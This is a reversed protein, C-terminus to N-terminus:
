SITKHTNTEFLKAAAYPCLCMSTKAKKILCLLLICQTRVFDEEQFVSSAPACAIHLYIPTFPYIASPNQDLYQEVYIFLLYIIQCILAFSDRNRWLRGSKRFITLEVTAQAEKDESRAVCKYIGASSETAKYIILLSTSEDNRSVSFDERDPLIKEGSPSYWDIESADGVVPPFPHCTLTLLGRTTLLPLASTVTCLACQCIM